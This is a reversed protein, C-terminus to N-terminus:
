EATELQLKLEDHRAFRLLGPACPLPRQSAEDSRTERDRPILRIACAFHHVPQAATM